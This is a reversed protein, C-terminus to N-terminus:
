LRPLRGRSPCTPPRQCRQGQATFTTATVNATSGALTGDGVDDQISVQVSYVGGHVYTNSGSVTYQSDSSDFAITGISTIAM